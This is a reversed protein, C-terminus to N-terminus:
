ELLSIGRILRIIDNASVAIILAMLAVFGILHTLGEKEPPIRKGGRLWEIGVFLLRGGDLMPIPLINLIALNISLLIAILTWGQLGSQRTVEGTVQAIGIPGSLEPGRGSGGAGGFWGRVEDRLLILTDWTQIVGLRAATWPPYSVKEEIQNVIEYRIGVTGSDAGATVPIALQRGDRTVTWVQEAGASARVRGPLALPDPVPEGAFRVVRDGAQLGGQEAPSGAGVETILVEGGTAQTTPVMFMITFAVVPFLANMASGAALVVARQWPKRRALSHPARPDNEGPMRVFGGLPLWNVSYILDALVIRGAGTERVRGEHRLLLESGPVDDLRQPHHPSRIAAISGDDKGGNGKGFIAALRGLGAMRGGSDEAEASAGPLEIYRAVLRGDPTEGSLVRIIQGPKIAALTGNFCVTAGDVLLESRGTYIGFARPPFGVGFELVKIGFAKATWFHGLEHIVVLLLLMPIFSVLAILWTEMDDGFQM